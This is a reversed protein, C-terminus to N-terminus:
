SHSDPEPRSETVSEEFLWKRAVPTLNMKFDTTACEQKTKHCLPDRVLVISDSVCEPPRFTGCGPGVPIPNGTVQVEASRMQLNQVNLVDLGENLRVLSSDLEM